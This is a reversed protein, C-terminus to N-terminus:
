FAKLYGEMRQLFETAQEVRKGTEEKTFEKTVIYDGLERADKAENFIRGFREEILGNKVFHLGFMSIAGNHTDPDIEKTLLVARAAHFIAYYARSISDAFLGDELLNKAATLAEKARDIEAEIREKRIEKNM